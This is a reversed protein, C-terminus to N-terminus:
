NKINLTSLDWDTGLVLVEFVLKQQQIEYKVQGDFRLRDIQIPSNQPHNQLRNKGVTSGNECGFQGVILKNKKTQKEQM